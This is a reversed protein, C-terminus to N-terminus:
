LKYSIVFYLLLLALAISIYIYNLDKKEKPLDEKESPSTNTPNVHPMGNAFPYGRGNFENANFTRNQANIVSLDYQYRKQANSLTDYAEQVLLFETAISTNGPNKDPHLLKAKIRYATKIEKLTATYNLNLISYYNKGNAMLQILENHM